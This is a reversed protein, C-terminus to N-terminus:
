KAPTTQPLPRFLEDPLPAKFDLHYAIVEEAPTQSTRRLVRTPYAYGGPSVAVRDITHTDLFGGKPPDYSDFVGVEARIALSNADPQVWLRYLDRPEPGPTRPNFVRLRITGHPGDHPRTDVLMARNHSPQWVSPHGIQEPMSEPWPMFPDDSPNIVQTMALTVNPPKLADVVWANGQPAYYRIATGDCIASVLPVFEGQHAQWWTLDADRPISPSGQRTPRLSEVRWKSGKRYVLSATDDNRIVFAKYDDFRTRGAKLGALIRTLDDGPLRDVVRATRPVGLDYISAPGTDRYDITTTAVLGDDGRYTVSHPLKTAPDIRVTMRQLPRGPNGIVRSHSEIELWKRGGAEVERRSETEVELGPSSSRAPQENDLLQRFWNLSLATNEPSEPLRYVVDEAAVYKTFVRTLDDHYEVEAGHRFGFVEGNPNYWSEGNAKGEPHVTVSHVWKQRKVAEAVQAWSITPKAVMVLGAVVVFGALAAGILWRSGQALRSCRPPGLRDLIVDRVREAHILALEVTPDGAENLYLRMLEEEHDTPDFSSRSM